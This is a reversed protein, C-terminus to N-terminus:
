DLGKKEAFWRTIVLTGEGGEAYVESDDNIQSKPIWIEEGEIACLLAADTEKIAQVDRIEVANPQM